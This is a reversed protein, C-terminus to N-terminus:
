NATGGTNGEQYVVWISRAANIVPPEDPMPSAIARM